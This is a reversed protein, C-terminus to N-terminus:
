SENKGQLPVTMSAVLQASQCITNRQGIGTSKGKPAKSAMSGCTDELLFPHCRFIFFAALIGRNKKWRQETKWWMQPGISSDNAKGAWHSRAANLDYGERYVSAQLQM